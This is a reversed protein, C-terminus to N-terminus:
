PSLGQSHSKKVEPDQRALRWIGGGVQTSFDASRDAHALPKRTSRKSDLNECRNRDVERRTTNPACGGQQGGLLSGPHPTTPTEHPTRRRLRILFKIALFNPPEFDQDKLFVLPQVRDIKLIKELALLFGEFFGLFVRRRGRFNQFVRM